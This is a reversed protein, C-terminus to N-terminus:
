VIVVKRGSLNKSLAIEAEKKSYVQVDYCEEFPAIESSENDKIKELGKEDTTLFLNGFKGLFIRLRLSDESQEKDKFLYQKRKVPEFKRNSSKKTMEAM